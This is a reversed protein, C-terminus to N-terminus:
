NLAAALAAAFRDLDAATKTETACVLLADGLQVSEPRGGRGSVPRRTSEATSEANGDRYTHSCECARIRIRHIAQAALGTASEFQM